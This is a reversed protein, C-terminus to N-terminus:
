LKDELATAGLLFLESEIEKQLLESINEEIVEVNLKKKGVGLKIIELKSNEYRVTWDNYYTEDLVRMAFCLTRFGKTSFKILDEKTPELFPQDISRSLREFIAFDAGKSFLIILGSDNDRVIVSM